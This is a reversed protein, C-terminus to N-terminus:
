TGTDLPLASVVHDAAGNGTADTAWAVLRVESGRGEGMAFIRERQAVPVRTSSAVVYALLEGDEGVILLEDGPELEELRAFAGPTGDFDTVGGLVAPGIEGPRRTQELWAVDGTVPPGQITAADMQTAVVPAVLGLRPVQLGVPVVGRPFDAPDVDHHHGGHEGPVPAPGLIVTGDPRTHTPLSFGDGNVDPAYDTEMVVDAMLAGGPMRHYGEPAAEQGVDIRCGALLTVLAFAAATRRPLPM